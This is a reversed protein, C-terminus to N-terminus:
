QGAAQAAAADLQQTFQEPTLVGAVLDLTIKQVEEKFAPTSRDITTTGSTSVASNGIALIAKALPIDSPNPQIKEAPIAAQNDWTLKGWQHALYKLLERDLDPNKSNAGAVWNGGYWAVLDDAKGKGSASVPFKFVDVNDRFSQPFSQDTVLGLEWSGMIYMAAKEQGFLNRSAGYDSTILDDQFLGAKALSQLEAAAQVFPPDTFKIKRELAQHLTDFSGSIRDVIADYTICLPWSDKGDTVVPIIGQAKFKPISAVLDEITSPVAVGAQQFLRKNYYFFWMDATVPIGYLKGYYVNSDLAGPLYNIDAYDSRDLERVLKSDVLPKLLTSFSWYKFVEPLQGATAYLKMKEQYPQDPYSEVEFTVNPHLKTFGDLITQAVLGMGNTRDSLNDAVKITVKQAQAGEKQGNAWALAPLVLLVVFLVMFVHRAKM